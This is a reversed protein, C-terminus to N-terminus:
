VLFGRSVSLDQSEILDDKGYTYGAYVQQTNQMLPASTDGEAVKEFSDYLKRLIRETDDIEKLEQKYMAKALEEQCFVYISYLEKALDYSFDLAGELENIMRQTKRIANKFAEHDQKRLSIRADALYAFCVEYMIVVLESRNSQSVRRTFDAMQEKKL